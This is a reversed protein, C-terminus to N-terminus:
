AGYIWRALLGLRTLPVVPLDNGSAFPYLAGVGYDLGLGWRADVNFWATVDVDFLWTWKSESEGRSWTGEGADFRHPSWLSILHAGSAGLGLQFAVRPHAELRVAGAMGAYWRSQFHGHYEFGLTWVPFVSFPGARWRPFEVGLGFAPHLVWDLTALQVQRTYAHLLFPLQIGAAAAPTRTADPASPQAAQADLSRTLPGFALALALVVSLGFCNTRASVRAANDGHALWWDAIM